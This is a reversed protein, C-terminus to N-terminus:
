DIGPQITADFDGLVGPDGSREVPGAAERHWLWCDLDAAAGNIDAAAPGGGDTGAVSIDPEDYSKGEDPDTGTFRALTVLWSHGTDTARIRVTRGPTPTITGWYPCGGYMVRLGEDVGDAALGADIPTRDGATLEADVRHILAEHAQRRRIFGATHDDSWTWAPTGPGTAALIEGLGRSAQQYFALLAARGAPRPPTLKEAEAGPLNERVVTAWFFQVEALHWLLDDAKWDPCPPVPAEPPAQRIAEAFRASERTLHGLYDIHDPM